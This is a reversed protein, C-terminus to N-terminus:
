LMNEVQQWKYFSSMGGGLALIIPNNIGRSKPSALSTLYCFSFVSREKDNKVFLRNQIYMLVLSSVFSRIQWSFVLSKKKLATLIGRFPIFLKIEKM